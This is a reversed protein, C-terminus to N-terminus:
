DPMLGRMLGNLRHPAEYNLHIWKYFSDIREYPVFRAKTSKHLKRLKYNM